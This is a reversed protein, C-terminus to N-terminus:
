KFRVFKDVVWEYMLVCVDKITICAQLIIIFVIGLSYLLGPIWIWWTVILIIILFVELGSM